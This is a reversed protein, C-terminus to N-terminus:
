EKLIVMIDLYKKVKLNSLTRCHLTPSQGHEKLSVAPTSWQLVPARVFAPERDTGKCESTVPQSQLAEAIVNQASNTQHM